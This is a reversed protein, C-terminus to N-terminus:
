GRGFYVECALGDNDPDIVAQEDPHDAYYAQAVEYTAFPSCDGVPGDIADAQEQVTSTSADDTQGEDGFAGPDARFAAVALTLTDFLGSAEVIQANALQFAAVDNFLLGARYNNGADSTLGTIQLWTTQIEAQRASPELELAETNTDIFVQLLADTTLLWDSDFQLSPDAGLDDFQDRLSFATDTLDELGDSVATLYDEEEDTIADPDATATATPPAPTRTPDPRPLPTEPELDAPDIDLSLWPELDQRDDRREEDSDFDLVYEDLDPSVRWGLIFDRTVGPDVTTGVVDGIADLDLADGPRKSLDDNVRVLEDGDVIAFRNSNLGAYSDGVNKARLTVLVFQRGDENPGWDLPAGFETDVIAAIVTFEWDGREYHPGDPLDDDGRAAASLVPMLGLLLLLVLTVRSTM